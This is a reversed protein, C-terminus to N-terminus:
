CLELESGRRWMGGLKSNIELEGVVGGLRVDEVTYM